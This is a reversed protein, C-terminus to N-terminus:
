VLAKTLKNKEETEESEFLAHNIRMLIYVSASLVVSVILSNVALNRSSDNTLRGFALLQEPTTEATSFVGDQNLDYRNVDWQYYIDHGLANGVLLTHSFSFILAAKFLIKSRKRLANRNVLLVIFAALSILAPILLHMHITITSM